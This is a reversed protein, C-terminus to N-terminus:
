CLAVSGRSLALLTIALMRLCGPSEVLWRIVATDLNCSYRYPIVQGFPNDRFYTVRFAYGIGVVGREPMQIARGLLDFFLRV